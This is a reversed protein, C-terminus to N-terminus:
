ANAIRQIFTDELKSLNREKINFYSALDDSSCKGEYYKKFALTLFHQGLYMIQNYFYNGGGPHSESNGYKSKGISIWESLKNKFFTESIIGKELFKYLIVQSSVKYDDAFKKAVKDSYEVSGSHEDFHEFPVLFESAFQNCFKEDNSDKFILDSTIGNNGLLVPGLEHFLTFIQRNEANTNNLYIVPFVDHSLCFGDVKNDEFAEKFVFVGKNQIEDRWSSIAIKSDGWSMQNEVSVGIYDRVEAALEAFDRNHAHKIDELIKHEVFEDKGFLEQLATQRFFAQRYLSYIKPSLKRIESSRLMVQDELNEENEPSSQMFFFAIAREYKSALKELQIYTPFDIGSEWDEICEREKGFYKAIDELSYGSKDRAWKLLHHNVNTIKERM